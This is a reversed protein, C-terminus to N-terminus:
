LVCWGETMSQVGSGTSHGVVVVFDQTDMPSTPTSPETPPTGEDNSDIAPVQFEHAHRRIARQHSRRLNRKQSRSLMTVASAVAAAVSIAVALATSGRSIHCRSLHHWGIWPEKRYMCPSRIYKQTLTDDM